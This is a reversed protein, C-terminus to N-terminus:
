GVKKSLQITYKINLDELLEKLKDIKREKSLKFQIHHPKNDRFVLSGDM